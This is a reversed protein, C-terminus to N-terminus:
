PVPTPTNIASGCGQACTEGDGDWACPDHPQCASACASATRPESCTTLGPNCSGTVDPCVCCGAEPTPTVTPVSTPTSTPIATGLTLRWVGQDTSGAFLQNQSAGFAFSHVSDIQMSISWSPASTSGSSRFISDAGVYFVDAPKLLFLGIVEAGAPGIGSWSVSGNPTTGRQVGDDRGAYLVNADEDFIVAEFFNNASGGGISGCQPTSSGPHTCRVVAQAQSGAYLVDHGVDYALSLYNADTVAAMVSCQKESSPKTCRMIGQVSKAAYLVDNAGDYLLAMMPAGGGGMWVLSPSTDPSAIRWLNGATNTQSWTGVFLTNHVGDYALSMVMDSMSEVESWSTLVVNPNSNFPDNNRVVYGNDTGAYLINRAEDLAISYVDNLDPGLMSGPGVYEWREVEPPLKTKNGNGDCSVATVALALVAASVATTRSM